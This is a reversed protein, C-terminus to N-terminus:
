LGRSRRRDAAVITRNIILARSHRIFKIEYKVAPLYAVERACDHINGRPYPPHPNLHCSARIYEVVQSLSSPTALSVLFLPLSSSFLLFSISSIDRRNENSPRDASPSM